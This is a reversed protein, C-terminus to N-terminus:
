KDTLGSLTKKTIIMIAGYKSEKGYLAKAPADKLINISEITEVKFDKLIAFDEKKGDVIVLPQANPDGNFSIGTTKVTVMPLAFKIPISYKVRVAKGNQFGPIWAKSLKMVRVAEEDIGYGLKRNIKIDVLSGDKEVTFSVYTIGQINNELAAVPYKMTSGLFKYFKDMGDPYIPPANLSVYDYVTNDGEDAVENKPTSYGTFTISPLETYNNSLKAPEEGSKSEFGELKFAAIFSYNGDKAAIKNDFSLVVNKVKQSADYGLNGAVQVNEIKGALVKFNIRTKGQANNALAETPYKISKGLYTYFKQWTINTTSLSKSGKTFNIKQEEDSPKPAIKISVVRIPAEISQSVASKINNLPIQEAVAILENNKRITASSLILTLAFLPVFLGYKLIAIKKSRQKHLMLIRKKILSKTFFGHTLDSPRTGFAQSLLLLSYTEKDGQFNAAAEDALFEHINKVTYKYAYIVPNFWTFIALLEFFLVDITHRQRIHTEEHLNITAPEPVNKAIAKKNFFSFAVGNGPNLFMKRITLLQFVFRCIFFLIGIVYVVVILNGWNFQQDATNAVGVQAVFVNLQDVRTYVHQAVPQTALWEFRMFPIALSLIASLMLYTRNLTFYTERDLLLKYFCFFVVLYINVQLLYHAWSM